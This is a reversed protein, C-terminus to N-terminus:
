KVKSAPFGYLRHLYIIKEGKPIPNLIRVVVSEHANLPSALALCLFLSTIFLWLRQM